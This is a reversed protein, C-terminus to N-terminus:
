ENNIIQNSTEKLKAENERRKKEALVIALNEKQREKEKRKRLKEEKNRKEEVLLADIRYRIANYLNIEAVSGNTRYEKIPFDKWKKDRVHLHKIM